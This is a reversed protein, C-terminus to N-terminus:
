DAAPQFTVFRTLEAEFMVGVLSQKIHTPFLYKDSNIACSASPYYPQDRRLLEGVSAVDNKSAMRTRIQLLFPAAIFTNIYLTNKIDM